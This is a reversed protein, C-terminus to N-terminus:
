ETIHRYCRASLYPVESAAVPVFRVVHETPLWPYYGMTARGSDSQERLASGWSIAPSRSRQKM